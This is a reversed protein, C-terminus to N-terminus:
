AFDTQPDSGGLRAVAARRHPRCSSRAPSSPSSRKSADRDRIDVELSRFQDRFRPCRETTHATSARASSRARM